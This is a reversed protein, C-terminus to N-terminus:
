SAMGVDARQPAQRGHLRLPPTASPSSWRRGGGGLLGRRRCHTGDGRDARELHTGGMSGSFAADGFAFIGGDSAVEWYGGGDPTAAIGVIPKALSRGAMSGYFTADGFAFVGGDAAVEWYGAGDPTAAFGVIPKTLPQGTMSGYATADGFPYIGGDAGVLWYGGGDPTAAMGVIPKALSQGSTSGYKLADGFAFVGGDAAVEWYGGGDPTAAAGVMPQDLKTGGMSGSFAAVGFSFVGGDSAVEWYGSLAPVSHFEWTEDRSYGLSSLGGFLLISGSNPEYAMSVWNAAIPHRATFLRHWSQGSWAWTQSNTYLVVSGISPDYVADPISPTAALGPSLAGAHDTWNTGDWTWTDSSLNGPGQGGWVLVDGTTPDYATAAETRPAPESHPVGSDLDNRGLGLHRQPLQVSDHIRGVPGRQGHGRTRWRQAVVPRHARRRRSSPGPPAMGPGPKLSPRTGMSGASCCSTEVRRTTVMSSGGMSPPNQPPFHETWNSGNWTWTDNSGPVVGGVMVVTGNAADYVMPAAVRPAPTTAPALQTWAPVTIAAGADGAGSTALTVLASTGLVVAVLRMAFWLPTTVATRSGCRYPLELKPSRM